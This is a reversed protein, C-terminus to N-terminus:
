RREEQPQPQHWSIISRVIADRRTSHCASVHTCLACCHRPSAAAHVDRIAVSPPADVRDQVVGRQRMVDRNAQPLRVGISGGAPRRGAADLLSATVLAWPPAHNEGTCLRGQCAPEGVVSVGDPHAQTHCFPRHKKGIAMGTRLARLRSVRTAGPALVWPTSEWTGEQVALSCLLMVGHLPDGPWHEFRSV